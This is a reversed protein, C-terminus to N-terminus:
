RGDTKEEDEFGFIDEGGNAAAAEMKDMLPDVDREWPPVGSPTSDTLTLSNRGCEPCPGMYRKIDGDLGKVEETSFSLTGSWLCSCVFMGTIEAANEDAM